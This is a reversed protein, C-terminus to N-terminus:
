KKSRMGQMMTSFGVTMGYSRSSMYCDVWTDDKSSCQPLSHLVAQAQPAMSQFTLHARQLFFVPTLCRHQRKSAPQEDGYLTTSATERKQRKAAKAKAHPQQEEAQARKRQRVKLETLWPPDDFDVSDATDMSGPQGVTSAAPQEASGSLEVQLQQAAKIVKDRFEDVVEELPRPQKNKKQAVRWKSQLPRVDEKRPKKHSLVVAAERIRQMDATSCSAIPEMALWRKVDGISQLQLGPQEASVAETDPRDAQVSVPLVASISGSAPKLFRQM